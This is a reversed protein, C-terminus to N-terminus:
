ARNAPRLIQTSTVRIGKLHNQIQRCSGKVSLIHVM